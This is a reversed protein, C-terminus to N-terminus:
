ERLSISYDFDIIEGVRRAVASMKFLFVFPRLVSVTKIFLSVYYFDPYVFFFGPQRALRTYV